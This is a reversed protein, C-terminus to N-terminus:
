VYVRSHFRPVNNMEEPSIKQILFTGPEHTKATIKLAEVKTGYDGLIEDNKIVIVRDSYKKLLTERHNLYYRYEKELM